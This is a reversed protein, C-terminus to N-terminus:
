YDLLSLWRSVDATCYRRFQLSRSCRATAILKSVVIAAPSIPWPRGLRRVAREILNARLLLPFAQDVQSGSLGHPAERM